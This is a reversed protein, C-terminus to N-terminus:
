ESDIDDMDDRSGDDSAEDLMRYGSPIHMGSMWKLPPDLNMSANEPARYENVRGVSFM